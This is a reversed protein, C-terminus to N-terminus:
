GLERNSQMEIVDFVGCHFDSIGKTFKMGLPESNICVIVSEFVSVCNEKSIHM